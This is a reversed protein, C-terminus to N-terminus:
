DPSDVGSTRDRDEGGDPEGTQDPLCVRCFEAGFPTLHISRRVTRTHGAASLAKAVEPQAELVQYRLPDPLSESSFWILGLRFLNNLYAPIDDPHRCGAEQGIMNLGAAILESTSRLPMLGSRVDVSPQPGQDALLRLIRAEDPALDDLIRAYAPHSGEDFNVDASRRLLEEGRERLTKRAEEREAEAAEPTMAAREQPRPEIGLVRRTRERMEAGTSRFLEGPEQGTVAARIVRSGAQTSAHVTWRAGRWYAAAAIRALGPVTRLLSADQPPDANRDQGPTEDAM